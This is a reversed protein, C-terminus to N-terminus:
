VGPAVLERLDVPPVVPEPVRPRPLRSIRLSAEDVSKASPPYSGVREAELALAEIRLDAADQAAKFLEKPTFRPLTPDETLLNVDTVACYASHGPECDERRMKIIPKVARFYDLGVAAQVEYDQRAKELTRVVTLDLTSVFHLPKSM